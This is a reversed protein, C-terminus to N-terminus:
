LPKCTCRSKKLFFTKTKKKPQKTTAKKNNNGKQPTLKTAIKKKYSVSPFNLLDIDNVCCANAWKGRSDTDMSFEKSHFKIQLKKKELKSSKCCIFPRSLYRAIYLFRVEPLRSEVGTSSVTRLVLIRRAAERWRLEELCSWMVTRWTFHHVDHCRPMTHKSTMIYM